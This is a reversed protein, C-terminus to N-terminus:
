KASRMVYNTIRALGRLVLDHPEHYNLIAPLRSYAIATLYSRAARM